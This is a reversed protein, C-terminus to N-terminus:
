PQEGGFTEAWLDATEDPGLQRDLRERLRRFREDTAHERKWAAELEAALEAAVEKEDDATDRKVELAQRDIERRRREADREQEARKRRSRELWFLPALVSLVLLLIGVLWRGGKQLWDWIRALVSV